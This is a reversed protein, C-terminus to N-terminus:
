DQALEFATIAPRNAPGVLDNSLHEGLPLQETIQKGAKGEIIRDHPGPGSVGNFLNRRDMRFAQTGVSGCESAFESAAFLFFHAPVDGL